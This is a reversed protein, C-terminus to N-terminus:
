FMRKYKKKSYKDVFNAIKNEIVASKGKKKAAMERREQELVKKAQEKSMGEPEANKHTTGNADQNRRYGLKKEAELIREAEGPKYERTKTRYVFEEGPKAQNTTPQKAARSGMKRTYEKVFVPTGKKSIRKHSKVKVDM